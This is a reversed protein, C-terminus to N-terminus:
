FDEILAYHDNDYTTYIWGDDQMAQLAGRLDADDYREEMAAQIDSFAVGPVLKRIVRLVMQRFTRRTSAIHSQTAQDYIGPPETLLRRTLLERIHRPFDPNALVARLPQGDWPFREEFTVAIASELDVSKWPQQVAHGRHMWYIRELRELPVTAFFNSLTTSDLGTGYEVGVRHLDIAVHPTLSNMIVQWTARSLQPTRLAKTFVVHGGMNGVADMMLKLLDLPVIRLFGSEQALLELFRAHTIKDWSLWEFPLYVAPWDHLPPWTEPFLEDGVAAIIETPRGKDIYKWSDLAEKGLEGEVPILRLTCRVIAVADDPHTEHCYFLSAYTILQIASFPRHRDLARKMLPLFGERVFSKTGIAEAMMLHIVWGPTRYDGCKFMAIKLVHNPSLPTHYGKCLLFYRIEYLYVLVLEETPLQILARILNGFGRVRGEIGSFLNIPYLDDLRPLLPRQQMQVVNTLLAVFARRRDVIPIENSSLMEITVCGHEHWYLLLTAYGLSAATRAVAPWPAVPFHLWRAWMRCVLAMSQRSALDLRPALEGAIIDEVGLLGPLINSEIRARKAVPEDEEPVYHRKM